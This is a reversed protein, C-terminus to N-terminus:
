KNGEHLILTQCTDQYLSGYACGVAVPSVGAALSEAIKNDENISHAMTSLVLTCIVVGVVTFMSVDDSM